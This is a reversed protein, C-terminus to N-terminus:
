FFLENKEDVRQAGDTLINWKQTELGEFHLKLNLENGKANHEPRYFVYKCVLFAVKFDTVMFIM